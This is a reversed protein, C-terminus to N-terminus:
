RYITTPINEFEEAKEASLLFDKSAFILSKCSAYLERNANFLTSIDAEKLINKGANRYSETMRNEYETKIQHLFKVLIEFSQSKDESLFLLNLQTYFDDLQLRLLQYNGYKFSNASNSFEIRDANVDMMGKASFMANRLSAILQNVHIHNENGIDQKTMKVYFTLIEGEAQKLFKYEEEISLTRKKTLFQKYPSKKVKDEIQFVKRNLLIVRYIFFGIEKELMDIANDAIEPSTNQLFFTANQATDTFRHELFDGFKGLFFYFLIVGAVNIFTQFAVLILIPDSIGIVDRLLGVIPVLLIFGFLSTVCNFLSNGLAVRKKAAIGGLAGLVIKITTGLEAGLVVAVATEIPIINAFLASLVIVVTAASTQILATIVFGILVFVIRPYVLFPKFDFGNIMTDMSQKMFDLGLFLLGFGLVFQSINQITKQKKFVILAVCSLGIFPLTAAGLDAKFGLFAVLWSNFTGGVNAGIVVGMANRMSLMGAGVFSLVMLNVISSSQLIGTVLTGSFIASLKKKTHKQLFLKFNRGETQRLANELLFMGYLFLGLGALLKWFDNINM